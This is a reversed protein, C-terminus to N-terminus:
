DPPSQRQDSFFVMSSTPCNPKVGSRRRRHMQADEFWDPLLFHNQSPRHSSRHHKIFRFGHLLLFVRKVLSLLPNFYQVTPLLNSLFVNLLGIYNYEVPIPIRYLINTKIISLTNTNRVFLFTVLISIEFLLCQFLSVTELTLCENILSNCKTIHLAQVSM